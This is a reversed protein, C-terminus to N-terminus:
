RCVVPPGRGALHEALERGPSGIRRAPGPTWVPPWSPLFRAAAPASPASSGTGRALKLALAVLAGLAVALPVAVWGGSGAVGALGTPHGTALAGELLEQGVYIGLLASSAALWLRRVRVGAPSAGPSGAAIRTLLHALVLALALALAPVVVQALYGHGERALESDAGGGFAIVYRLQHLGLASVALFAAVRLTHARRAMRRHDCGDAPSTM